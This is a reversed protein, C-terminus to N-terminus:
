SQKAPASGNQPESGTDPPELLNRMINALRAMNGSNRHTVSQIKKMSHLLKANVSDATCQGRDTSSTAFVVDKWAPLAQLSNHRLIVRSVKRSITQNTEAICSFQQEMSHIHNLLESIQKSMEAVRATDATCRSETLTDDSSNNDVTSLSKSSCRSAHVINETTAELRSVESTWEAIEKDVDESIGTTASQGLTGAGAISEEMFVGSLPAPEEPIAHRGQSEAAQNVGEDLVFGLQLGPKETSVKSGCEKSPHEDNAKPIDADRAVPEVPTILYARMKAHQDVYKGKAVEPPHTREDYITTYTNSYVDADMAEELTEDPLPVRSNSFTRSAHGDADIMPQCNAPGADVGALPYDIIMVSSSRSAEDYSNDEITEVMCSTSAARLRKADPLQSDAVTNAFADYKSSRKLSDSCETSPLVLAPSPAAQGLDVKLAHTPLAICPVVRSLAADRPMHKVLPLFDSSWSVDRISDSSSVFEMSQFIDSSLVPNGQLMRRYFTNDFLIMQDQLLTTRLLKLMNCFGVVSSRLNIGGENNPIDDFDPLQDAFPFIREELIKPVNFGQRPIHYTPKNDKACFGANALQVDVCIGNQLSKRTMYVNGTAAVTNKLLASSVLSDILAGRAPSSIYKRRQRGEGVTECFEDYIDGCFQALHDDSLAPNANFLPQYFWASDTFDPPPENLVHWKYFLLIALANWPCQLIRSHRLLEAKHIGHANATKRGHSQSGEIDGGVQRTSEHPQTCISISQCASSLTPGQSQLKLSGLTIGSRIINSDFWTSMSILYWLRMELSCYSSRRMLVCNLFTETENSFVRWEINPLVRDFSFLTGNPNVQHRTTDLPGGASAIASQGAKITSACLKEDCEKASKSPERLKTGDDEQAPTAASLKALLDMSVRTGLPNELGAHAANVRLFVAM